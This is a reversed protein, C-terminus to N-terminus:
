RRRRKGAKAPKWLSLRERLAADTFPGAGVSNLVEIPWRPNRQLRYSIYRNLGIYASLPLAILSITGLLWMAPGKKWYQHSGPGILPQAITLAEGLNVAFDQYRPEGATWVPGVGEMMRRIYEWREVPGSTNGYGFGPGVGVRQIELTSGPRDAITLVLSAERRAVQGTFITRSVVEARVCDWDYTQVECRPRAFINWCWQWWPLGLSKFVHVKRGRRDFLVPEARYGVWDSQILSLVILLLIIENVTMWSFGFVFLSLYLGFGVTFVGVWGCSSAYGRMASMQDVFSVGHEYVDLVGGHTFARPSAQCSRDPLKLVSSSATSDGQM